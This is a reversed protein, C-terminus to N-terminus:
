PHHIFFDKTLERAETPHEMWMQHGSDPFVISQCSPLLGALEVTILKLFEQSIGGYMLLVPVRISKIASVPVVPFLTGDTMMVDWEHADKLTDARASASLKRWSGPDHFMYNIFDATGKETHGNQFDQKMPLVMNRQIDAYIARGLDTNPESLSQLLPVVPPQALVAARVMEPHRALLILATLAGYSHGVVYVRGLHMTRILAALDDADTVASYGKRSPNQNPWNYRRSYAIVRYRQAFPGIQSDWYTLDSLSGHVFIVPTGSGRDRYHLTVGHRICVSKLTSPSGLSLAPVALVGIAFAWVLVARVAWRDFM